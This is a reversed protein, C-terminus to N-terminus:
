SNLAHSPAKQFSYLATVATELLTLMARHVQAKVSRHDVIEKVTTPGLHIYGKPPM